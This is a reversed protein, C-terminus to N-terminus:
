SKSYVVTTNHEPISWDFQPAGFQCHSSIVIKVAREIEVDAGIHAVDFTAPQIGSILALRARARNVDVHGARESFQSDYRPDRSSL